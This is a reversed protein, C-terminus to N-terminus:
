PMFPLYKGDTKDLLWVPLAEEDSNYSAHKCCGLVKECLATIEDYFLFPLYEKAHVSNAAQVNAQSFSLQVKTLLTLVTEPKLKLLDDFIDAIANKGGNLTYRLWLETVEIPSGQAIELFESLCIMHATTVCTFLEQVM